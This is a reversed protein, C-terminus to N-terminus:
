NRHTQWLTVSVCLFINESFESERRETGRHCFKGRMFLRAMMLFIMALSSPRVPFKNGRRAIRGRRPWARIWCPRSCIRCARGRLRRGRARGTWAPPPVRLRWRRTQFAARSFNPSPRLWRGQRAPPVPVRRRFNWKVKMPGRAPPVSIKCSLFSIRTMVGCDGSPSCSMPLFDPSWGCSVKPLM